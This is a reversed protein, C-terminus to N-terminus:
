IQFCKVQTPDINSLNLKQNKIIDAFLFTYIYLIYILQLLGDIWNVIHHIAIIHFQSTPM